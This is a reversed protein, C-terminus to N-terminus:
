LNLVHFYSTGRGLPIRLAYGNEKGRTCVTENNALVIKNM